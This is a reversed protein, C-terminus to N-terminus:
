GKRKFFPSFGLDYIPEIYYFARPHPSDPFDQVRYIGEPDIGKKELTSELTVDIYKAYTNCIDPEKHTPTLCFRACRMGILDLFLMASEHYVRNEESVLLTDASGFLTPSELNDECFLVLGIAEGLEKNTTGKNVAYRLKEGISILLRKRIRDIRNDFTMGQFNTTAFKRLAENEIRRLESDSLKHGTNKNLQENYHELTDEIIQEIGNVTLKRVDELAGNLYKSLKPEMIMVQIANTKEDNSVIEAIEKRAKKCYAYLQLRNTNQTKLIPNHKINM